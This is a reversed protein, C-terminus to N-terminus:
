KGVGIADVIGSPTLYQIPRNYGNTCTNFAGLYINAMTAKDPTFAKATGDGYVIVFAEDKLEGTSTLSVVDTSAVKGDWFSRLKECPFNESVLVPVCASMDITYDAVISWHLTREDDAFCAFYEESSKFKKTFIDDSATSSEESKGLKEALKSKLDKLKDKAREALSGQARPWASNQGSAVRTASANTIAVYLHAGEIEADSMAKRLWAAHEAEKQTRVKEAVDVEPIDDYGFWTKIHNDDVFEFFLKEGYKIPCVFGKDGAKFEWKLQLAGFEKADNAPIVTNGSRVSTEANAVYVYAEIGEDTSLNSVQMVSNSLVGARFTITLPPDKFIKACYVVLLCGLVLATMAFLNLKKM